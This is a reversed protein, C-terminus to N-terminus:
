RIEMKKATNEPVKIVGFRWLLPYIYSIGRIDGLEKPRKVEETKECANQFALRVSSWSLSEKNKLSELIFKVLWWVNEERWWKWDYFVGYNWVSGCKEGLHWRTFNSGILYLYKEYKSIDM